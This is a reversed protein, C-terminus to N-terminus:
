CKLFICCAYKCARHVNKLYEVKKWYVIFVGFVSHINEFISNKFIHSSWRRLIHHVIGLYPIFKRSYKNDNKIYTIGLYPNKRMCFKNSLQMNFGAGCSRGNQPLQMDVNPGWECMNHPLQMNVRSGCKCM